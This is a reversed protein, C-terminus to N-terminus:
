RWSRASPIARAHLPRPRASDARSASCPRALARARPASRSISPRQRRRPTASIAIPCSNAGIRIAATPSISCRRGASSRCASTASPSAAVASACGRRRGPRSDLRFRLRRVARRRRDGAGHSARRAPRDRAHRARRRARRGRGCGTPRVSDAVGSALRADDAHGVRVGAVDTILSRASMAPLRDRLSRDRELETSPVGSPKGRAADAPM